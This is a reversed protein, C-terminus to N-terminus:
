RQLSLAGAPDLRCIRAYLKHREEEFDSSHGLTRYLLSLPPAIVDAGEWAELGLREIEEALEQLIPRGVEDNGTALCIQALQVRRM